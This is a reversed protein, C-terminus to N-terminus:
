KQRFISGFVLLPTQGAKCPAASRGMNLSFPSSTASFVGVFAEM